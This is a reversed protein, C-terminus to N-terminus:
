SESPLLISGQSGGALRYLVHRRLPHGAPLKPHDFNDAPDHTMGIKEMVRRSPLNTETTFSVLASLKLIDFAHRIVATAGESALGRNWYPAALRWGIEVAPTFHAEFEPVSLGIFGIFKKTEALEAAYLGWGRSAIGAEIWDVGRDSEERTLTAPFFKMVRPDANMAAFPERDEARWHRLLLRTTRIM